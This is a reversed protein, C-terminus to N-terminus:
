AAGRRRIAPTRVMRPEIPPRSLDLGSDGMGAARPQGRSRQKPKLNPLIRLLSPMVLASALCCAMGLTLVRGLSHLGRHSAIMLGGFGVINMLTNVVIAGATSPCMRYPYPERLYDHVIQVGTDVGIGLVLPLVIMNAPNLPINLLGMLGFLQLKSLVLPALALLTMSVSQFDLYVVLVVVLIGYIAGKEYGSKMRLSSEYVQLPNGTVDPDVSRVQRVFQQMADMNWIDAKTYIQMAFCGHKGVFRSLLAEPLDAFRPPEPGAVARLAYLRELLDAAMSQQFTALRRFYEAKPLARVLTRIREVSEAEKAKGALTMFQQLRKLAQDLAEPPVVPIPQVHEPLASLRQNIRRVVPRKSEPEAPFYSVIEKVSDVMPCRAPDLFQRKREVLEERSRAVSVAFSSSFDNQRLLQKELEVSELGAAQLNLLNHDYWLRGLGLCFVATLILYGAVMLTPREALPRLWAYVDLPAPARWPPRKADSWQIMAPLTTLAAIWCLLIGGGAIIGLEAIGPFESLGITYFALATAVASTTVGPGISRTTEMLAARTPVNEARLRLYRAIHYVGYDSGLGIVITAFASSLINLHGVTMVIYGFSWVMPLLLAALAMMPHRVCGFGAIYLLAVGVLSLIGAWTMARQSAEMEDNEMMPIGTLGIWTEPHRAKANAVIRRLEAIAGAYETLSSGGPDKVLCFTVMGVRDGSAMLYGGHDPEEQALPAESPGASRGAAIGAVGDRPTAALIGSMDPYPSQYPGPRGLATALVEISQAQQARGDGLGALTGMDGRQLGEVLWALQGGVNLASWNGELVPQAQNLFGEIQQLRPLDLYYLGKARLRALDVKHFVSRFLKPQHELMLALEDLVPVVAARDKGHVVLLVDDQDGFENVYELWRHHYASNPNLLDARSNRLSLSHGAWGIAGVALLVSLLVTAVPFRLVLATVAM